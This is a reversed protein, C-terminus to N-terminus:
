IFLNSYRKKENKAYEGAEQILIALIYELTGTTFIGAEKTVYGDKFDYNNVMDKMIEAYPFTLGCDINQKEEKKEKESEM